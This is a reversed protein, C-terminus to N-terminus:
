FKLFNLFYVCENKNLLGFERTRLTLLQKICMRTCDCLKVSVKCNYHMMIDYIYYQDRTTHGELEHNMQDIWLMLVCHCAAKFQM